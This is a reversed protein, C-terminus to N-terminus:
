GAWTRADVDPPPHGTAEVFAGYQANTIPTRTIAYAGTERRTRAHEADYWVSSARARTATRRRTSDM